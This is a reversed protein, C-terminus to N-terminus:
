EPEVGALKVLEAFRKINSVVLKRFEEPTGGIPALRVAEIRQRMRPNKFAKQIEGSLKALVAPPLKAPSLLGHWSPPMDTGTVGSEVMTPVDPLFSARKAGNYAIARARGATIHPMGLPATAFMVQIEGAVLATLAPGAGKYPVHVMNAGTRAAFVATAMHITNGVGPSGYALKGGPKRALEILEKVNRVPLSPNVVVIHAEGETIQSVPTFDKVTDYPLKKRVSPNVVFSGSTYLLTHGDPTAKAVIDAAIIGNAGPRNDVVFTQKTQAALQQALIRATTDPGGAGFGLVIRVPRGPYEAGAAGFSLLAAALPALLFPPLLRFSVM